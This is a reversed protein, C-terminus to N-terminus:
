NKVEISILPILMVSKTVGNHHDEHTMASDLRQSLGGRQQPCCSTPVARFAIPRRWWQAALPLSPAVEFGIPASSPFDTTRFESCLRGRLSKRVLICDRTKLSNACRQESFLVARDSDGRYDCRCHM